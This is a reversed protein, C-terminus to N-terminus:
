SVVLKVVVLIGCMSLAIQNSSVKKLDSFHQLYANLSHLFNWSDKGGEGIAALIVEYRLEFLFFLSFNFIFYFEQEHCKDHWSYFVCTM